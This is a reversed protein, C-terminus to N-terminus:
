QWGPFSWASRVGYRGMLFLTQLDAATNLLGHQNTPDLGGVRREGNLDTVLACYPEVCDNRGISGNLRELNKRAIREEDLGCEGGDALPAIAWGDEVSLGDFYVRFYGDDIGEVVLWDGFGL